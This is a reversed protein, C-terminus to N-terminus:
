GALEAVPLAGEPPNDSLSIILPDRLDALLNILSRMPSGNASRDRM